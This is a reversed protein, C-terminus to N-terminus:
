SEDTSQLSRRFLAQETISQFDFKASINQCALNISCLLPSLRIVKREVELERRRRHGKEYKRKMIPHGVCDRVM